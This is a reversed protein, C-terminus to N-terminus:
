AEEVPSLSRSARRELRGRISRAEALLAEAQAIASADPGTQEHVATLASGLRDLEVRLGGAEELAADRAVGAAALEARLGEVRRRLTDVRGEAESRRGRERDFEAELRELQTQLESRGAEARQQQAVRGDLDAQTRGLAERLRAPEERATALSRELHRIKAALQDTAGVPATIPDTAGEPATISDTAGDPATLEVDPDPAPPPGGPAPLEILWGLSPHPRHSGLELFVRGSLHPEIWAPLEFSAYWDGPRIEGPHGPTATYRERRGDVEVLLQARSPPIQRRDNWHGRVHLSVLGPGAPSCDVGEVHLPQHTEPPEAM